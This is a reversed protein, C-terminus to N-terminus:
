RELLLPCWQKAPITISTQTGACNYYCIKWNGLIEEDIKSCLVAARHLGNPARALRGSDGFVSATVLYGVALLACTQRM